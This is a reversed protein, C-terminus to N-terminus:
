RRLPPLEADLPMPETQAFGSQKKAHAPQTKRISAQTEAAESRSKHAQLEADRVALLRELDAKVEAPPEPDAAKKPQGRLSTGSRPEATWFGPHPMPPCAGESPLAFQWSVGLLWNSALLDAERVKAIFSNQLAVAHTLLRPDWHRMLLRMHVGAEQGHATALLVEAGIWEAPIGHDELTARLVSRLLERRVSTSTSAPSASQPSVKAKPRSASAPKAPQLGLVQRLFSM